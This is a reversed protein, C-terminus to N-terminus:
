DEIEEERELEDLTWFDKIMEEGDLFTQKYRMKIITQIGVM